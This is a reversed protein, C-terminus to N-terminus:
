RMDMVAPRRTSDIVLATSSQAMLRRALATTMAVDCDLLSFPEWWWARTLALSVTSNTSAYRPNHVFELDPRPSSATLTARLLEDRYGTVVVAHETGAVRLQALTHCLLPRGAVEVIGKPRDATLPRLRNGVGAALIIARM